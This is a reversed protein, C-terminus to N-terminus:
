SWTTDWIMNTCLCIFIRRHNEFLFRNPLCNRIFCSFEFSFLYFRTQTQVTKEDWIRVSWMGGMKGVSAEYFRFTFCFNTKISIREGRLAKRWNCTSNIPAKKMSYNFKSPPFAFNASLGLIELTSHTVTSKRQMCIWSPFTREPLCIAEHEISQLAFILLPFTEPSITRLQLMFWTATRHLFSLWM